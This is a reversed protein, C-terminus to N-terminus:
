GKEDDDRRLGRAARALGSASIEEEEAALELATAQALVRAARGPDTDELEFADRKLALAEARKARARLARHASSVTLWYHLWVGTVWFLPGTVILAAYIAWWPADPPTPVAVQLAATTSAVIGLSTRM